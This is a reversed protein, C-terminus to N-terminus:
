SRVQVMDAAREEGQSCVVTMEAETDAELAAVAVAVMDEAAAPEVEMAAATVVAAAAVEMVPEAVMDEAAPEVEMVAAAAVDVVAMDVPAAATDVAVVEAVAVETDVLAEAMVVAVMDVVAAGVVVAMDEATDVAAVDEALVEVAVMGQHIHLLDSDASGAAAPVVDVAAWEAAVLAPVAVDVAEIAALLCSCM